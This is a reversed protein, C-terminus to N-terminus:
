RCRSCREVEEELSGQPRLVRLAVGEDLELVLREAILAAVSGAEVARAGSLGPSLRALAQAFCGSCGGVACSAVAAPAGEGALRGMVVRPGRSASAVLAEGSCEALLGDPRDPLAEFAPPAIAHSLPSGVAARGLRYGVEDAVVERPTAVLTCGAGELYAAATSLATGQGALVFRQSLLARQGVGGVETLLIQRSFRQIAAEDLEPARAEPRHPKLDEM